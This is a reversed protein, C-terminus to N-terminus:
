KKTRKMARMDSRVAFSHEPEPESKIKRKLPSSEKKPSTTSMAHFKDIIPSSRLEEDVESKIIVEKKVTVETAFAAAPESKIQPDTKFGLPSVHPSTKIPVLPKFPTSKLQKKIV